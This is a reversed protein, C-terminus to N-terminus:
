VTGELELLSLELVAPKSHDCEQTLTTGKPAGALGQMDRELSAKNCQTHWGRCMTTVTQTGEPSLSRRAPASLLLPRGQSVQL